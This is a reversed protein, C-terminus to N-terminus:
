SNTQTKFLVKLEETTPEQKLNLRIVLDLANSAPILVREGNKSKVKRFVKDPDSRLLGNLDDWLLENNADRVKAIIDKMSPNSSVASDIALIADYIVSTLFEAIVVDSYQGSTERLDVHQKLAFFDQPNGGLVEWAIGRWQDAGPKYFIEAIESISFLQDKSIRELHVITQRKTALLGPEVSDTSSDVIVRLKYKDTLTRVAGTLDAHMRAPLRETANIVVIPSTRFMFRYCAIARKASVIPDGFSYPGRKGLEKLVNSCIQTQSEGASATSFVVGPTRSLASSLLFSKGVGKEGTVVCYMQPNSEKSKLWGKLTALERIRVCTPGTVKKFFSSMALGIARGPGLVPTIDAISLICGAIAVILAGSTVDLPLIERAM